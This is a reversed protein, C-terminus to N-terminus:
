LQFESVERLENLINERCGIEMRAILVRWENDKEGSIVNNEGTTM